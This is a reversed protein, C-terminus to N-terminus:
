RQAFISFPWWRRARPAQRDLIDASAIITRKADPANMGALSRGAPCQCFQPVFVMTPPNGMPKEWGTLGQGKCTECTM